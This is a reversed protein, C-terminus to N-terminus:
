RMLGTDRFSVQITKQEAFCGQGKETDMFVRLGADMIIWEKHFRNHYARVDHNPRSLPAPAAVKLYM